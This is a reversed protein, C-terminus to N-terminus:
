QDTHARGPREAILMRRHGALDTERGTLRLVGIARAIEQQQVGATIKDPTLM